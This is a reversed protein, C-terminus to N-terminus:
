LNLAVGTRNGDADANPEVRTTGPNGIAKYSEHSGGAGTVDGALAAAMARLAQRPTIGSEVGDALDLLSAAASAATQVTYLLLPIVRVGSTSSKGSFVLKDALTEAQTLDFSYLGPANTADLETASTDGLVTVAGDDKSVYATLNAADGTKPTNAATDIVLFTVKQAAVNKFM